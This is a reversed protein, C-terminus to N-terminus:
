GSNDGESGTNDGGTIKMSDFKTIALNLEEIAANVEEPTALENSSVAQAKVIADHLIKKAGSQYQGIETGEVAKDLTTQLAAIKQNLVTKDIVAKKVEITANSTEAKRVTGKGNALEVNLLEIIETGAANDKAKFKIGLVQGDQAIAGEPSALRFRYIGPASNYTEMIVTKESLSKAEIFD